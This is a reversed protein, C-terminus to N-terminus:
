ESLTALAKLPIAEVKRYVTSPKAVQGEVRLLDEVKVGFLKQNEQLYPLILNWDAGEVSTLQGGNLQDLGVKGSPDRVYIAGGSALSFLNGGPYPTELERIRGDDGLGIGNVVIFGGGNLPDGAM